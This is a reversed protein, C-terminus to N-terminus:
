QNGEGESFIPRGWVPFASFPGLRGSSRGLLANDSPSKGLSRPDDAMQGVFDRAKTGHPEVHNRLWRAALFEKADYRFRM